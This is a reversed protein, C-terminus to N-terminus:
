RLIVQRVRYCVQFFVRCFIRVIRRLENCERICVPEAPPPGFRNPLQRRAGNRCVRVITGPPVEPRERFRIWSLPKAPPLLHGPSERVIIERACVDGVISGRERTGFMIM